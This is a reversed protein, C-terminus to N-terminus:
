SLRLMLRAWGAAYDLMAKGIRLRRARDDRWRVPVQALRAGARELRAVVEAGFAFGGALPRIPLREFDARRVMKLGCGPDVLSTGPLIRWFASLSRSILSRALGRGEVVSEAHWRSGAVVDATDAAILALGRFIAEPDVAMDADCYALVERDAARWRWARHIAMGKDAVLSAHYIEIRGFPWAGGHGAIAGAIDDPTGNTALVVKLDVDPRKACAAALRDLSRVIRGAERHCPIVLLLRM